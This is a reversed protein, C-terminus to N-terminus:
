PFQQPFDPNPEFGVSIDPVGWTSVSTRKITEPSLFEMFANNVAVHLAAICFPRTTPNGHGPGCIAPEPGPPFFFITRLGGGGALVSRSFIKVSFRQLAVQTQDSLTLKHLRYIINSSVFVFVYVVQDPWPDGKLGGPQPLTNRNWGMGRARRCLEHCLKYYQNCKQRGGQMYINLVVM